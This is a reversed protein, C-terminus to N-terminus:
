FLIFHTPNLSPAVSWVRIMLISLLFTGGHVDSVKDIGEDKIKKERGM